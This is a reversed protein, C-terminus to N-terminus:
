LSRYVEIFKKKEVSWNYRQVFADHGRKGMKKAESPNDLLYGIANAIDVENFINIVLGCKEEKVILGVEGNDPAIIPLSAKMYEIIKRSNGKTLMAGYEKEVLALGIDAIRYFTNLKQYPQFEIIDVNDDLGNALVYEEILKTDDGICSGILLLKVSSHKDKIMKIARMVEMIGKKKGIFGAYLIIRHNQYKKKLEDYLQEDINNGLEPVNAVIQINKKIKAYKHYITDSRSPVCVVGDVMRVILNECCKTIKEFLYFYKPCNMFIQSIYFESIEYVVKKGRLKGAFVAVPLLVVHCCHIIDFDERMLAKLTKIYFLPLKKFIKLGRQGPVGWLTKFSQSGGKNDNKKTIKSQIRLFCIGNIYEEQPHMGRRDWCIVKVNYGNELLTKIELEWRPILDQSTTIHIVTKM